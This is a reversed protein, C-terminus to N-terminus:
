AFSCTLVDIWVRRAYASPGDACAAPAEGRVQGAEPSVHLAGTADVPRSVGPFVGSKPDERCTGEAEVRAVWAPTMAVRRDRRKQTSM